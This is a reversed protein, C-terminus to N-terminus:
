PFHRNLPNSVDEINDLDTKDLIDDERKKPENDNQYKFDQPNATGFEVQKQRQKTSIHHAELLIDLDPQDSLLLNSKIGSYRSTGSGKSWINIHSKWGGWQQSRDKMVETEINSLRRIVTSKNLTVNQKYLDTYWRYLFAHVRGQKSEDLIQDRIYQFGKQTVNQSNFQSSVDQRHQIVEQRFQSRIYSEISDYEKEARPPIHLTGPGDNLIYEKTTEHHQDNKITFGILVGTDIVGVDCM